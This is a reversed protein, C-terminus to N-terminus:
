ENAPDEHKHESSSGLVLNSLRQYFYGAALLLLGSIFFSVIRYIKELESMDILLTKGVTLAFLAFGLYRHLRSRRLLGLWILLFAQIAWAVSILSIGIRTDIQVSQHSWRLFEFAVLSALFVQGIFELIDRESKRQMRLALRAGILLAGIFCLRFPFVTNLMLWSSPIKYHAFGALFFCTGIAYALLAM